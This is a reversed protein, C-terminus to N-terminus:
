PQSFERVHSSVSELLAPPVTVAIDLTWIRDDTFAECKIGDKETMVIPQHADFPPSSFDQKRFQYHDPFPYATVPYPLADLLSFFRQPNGIGAVAQISTGMKFPAGAFPKKEGSQMHVLFRPQLSMLHAAQLEELSESPEGNVVVADVRRIRAVSERLPGAPLCLRNGFLREGDVVCIEYSRPLPYHQLGDDSLIVDVDENALVYNLAAVRNPDIVVPCQTKRAILAPEDGSRAIPLEETVALPYNNGTSKYGRSIIAPKFGQEKLHLALAILLPTKGTGGVTINGVVIVPCKLQADQGKKLSRARLGALVQVLLGLPWLLWLWTAKRYWAKSLFDM